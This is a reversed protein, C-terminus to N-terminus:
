IQRYNHLSPFGIASLLRFSLWNEGDQVQLWSSTAFFYQAWKYHFSVGFQHFPSNQKAFNHKVMLEHLSTVAPSTRNLLRPSGPIQFATDIQDESMYVCIYRFIFIYEKLFDESM